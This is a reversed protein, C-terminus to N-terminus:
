NMKPLEPVTENRKLIKLKQDDIITGNRQKVVNSFPNMIEIINM